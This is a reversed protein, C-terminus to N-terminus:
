KSLKSITLIVPPAVPRTPNSGAAIYVLSARTNSCGWYMEFKSNQAANNVVFAVSAVSDGNNRAVTVVSNSGAIPTGDQVAWFYVTDGAATSTIMFSASVLWTGTTRLYFRHTCTATHTGSGASTTQIATGGPKTALSFQGAAHSVVYYATGPTLGTPLSGTTSLIVCDGNALAPFDTTATYSVVGPNAQTITVTVGTVDHGIGRPTIDNSSFLVPVAVTADVLTQGGTTLDSFQGHSVPSLKYSM